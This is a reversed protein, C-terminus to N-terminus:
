QEKETHAAAVRLVEGAEAVDAWGARAIDELEALSVLRGHVDGAHQMWTDAHAANCFLNAVSCFDRTLHVCPGTPLWLVCPLPKAHGERVPVDLRNGCTPCTTSAIADLGLAVPIGVVDLACWTHLVRGSVVFAHRTADTTLGHAGVIEGDGFVEAAGASVLQDLAAQVPELPVKRREAIESVTVPAGHLLAVFADHRVAGVLQELGPEGDM